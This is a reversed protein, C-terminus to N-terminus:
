IFGAVNDFRLGTRFGERATRVVSPMRSRIGNTACACPDSKSWPKVARLRHEGACDGLHGAERGDDYASILKRLQM